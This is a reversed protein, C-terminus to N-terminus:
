SSVAKVRSITLEKNNNLHDITISDGDNITNNVIQEAILDEVYKQLARKLPRAGFKTDYGKEVIFIKASKTLEVFYGLKEVRLTLKKLEIEVISSIAKKDLSNFIVFDDIRNLFEPAFTKKLANEIVGKQLNDSQAKQSATEFGVGTGFDKLQRAGINSTM